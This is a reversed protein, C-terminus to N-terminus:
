DRGNVCADSSNGCNCTTSNRSIMQETMEIAMMNQSVTGPVALVLEAEPISCDMYGLFTCHKTGSPQCSSLSCALMWHAGSKLISIWKTRTFSSSGHRAAAQVRYSYLEILSDANRKM